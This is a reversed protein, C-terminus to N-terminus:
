NQRIEASEGEVFGESIQDDATDELSAQLNYQYNNRLFQINSFFSFIAKKIKIDLNNSM